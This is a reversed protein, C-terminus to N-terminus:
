LFSFFRDNFFIKLYASLSDGRTITYSISFYRFFIYGVADNVNTSVLYMSLTAYLIIYDIVIDVYVLCNKKENKIQLHYNVYILTSVTVIHFLDLHYIYVSM